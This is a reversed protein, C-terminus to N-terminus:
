ILATADEISNRRPRRLVTAGWGRGHNRSFPLIWVANVPQAPEIAARSNPIRPAEHNIYDDGNADNQSTAQEAQGLEEVRHRPAIILKGPPIVLGDPPRRNQDSSNEPGKTVPQRPRM